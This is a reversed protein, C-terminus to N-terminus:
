ENTGKAEREEKNNNSTDDKCQFRKKKSDLRILNYAGLAGIM